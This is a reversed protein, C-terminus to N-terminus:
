SSEGGAAWRARIEPAQENVFSAFALVAKDDGKYGKAASLFEDLKADTRLYADNTHPLASMFYDGAEMFGHYKEAGSLVKYSARMFSTCWSTANPTIDRARPSSFVREIRRFESGLVGDVYCRVHHPYWSMYRYYRHAVHLYHGMVRKYQQVDALLDSEFALLAEEASEFPTLFFPLIAGLYGGCHEGHLFYAKLDETHSKPNAEDIAKAEIIAWDAERQAYWDVDDTKWFHRISAARESTEHSM